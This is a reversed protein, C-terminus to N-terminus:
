IIGLRRIAMANPQHASHSVHKACDAGTPSTLPFAASTATRSSSADPRHSATEMGTGWSRAPKAKRGRPPHGEPANGGESRRTPAAEAARGAPKEALPGTPMGNDGKEM